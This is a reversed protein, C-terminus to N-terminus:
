SEGLIARTIRRNHRILIPSVVMSLVTAALLPQVLAPSLLDRRLLLTLLAFGFEGGQSVVVGTRLSKFWSRTVPKSAVAVIVTKLITMGLVIASVLPLHRLLLPVDLLMGLTFFFVGLLVER